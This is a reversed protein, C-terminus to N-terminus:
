AATLTYPLEGSRIESDSMAARVLLTYEGAALDAPALFMLDGPMNRGVLSVRTEAGSAAKFFIGQEPQAPDFKLRHGLIQGMGGPTLASNRLGSNIDIYDLPSPSPRQAEQKVTQARASMTQRLRKGATVAASVQHRSPDFSDTRGHFVGRISASFNTLPTNVNWGELIMSEVATYYDELVSLTDARTVTSGQQIMREIVADLEATGSSQVFAMFDDPDSTLNNEYLSYKIPM